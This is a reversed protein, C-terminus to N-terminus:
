PTSEQPIRSVCYWVGAFVLAAAAVNLAARRAAPLTDVDAETARAVSTVTASPGVISLGVLPGATLVDGVNVDLPRRARAVVVPEDATGAISAVDLAMQDRAASVLWSVGAGSAGQVRLEVRAFERTNFKM